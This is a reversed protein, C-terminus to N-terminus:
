AFTDLLRALEVPQDGQVSHGAGAVLEYRVSPQRQRFAEVDADDVVPSRDGRVLMIPVTIASVDEWLRDFDVTEIGRIRDYRWVWRGDERGTANHLVGRRLSSETRGPNHEITRALIEDFSSFSDPGNIFDAIAKSKERNVGPTVDVIVLKRVVDPHQAALRIASLGGLSMGVVAAADPALERIAIALAEANREPTYDHDPRWDSYGHGPLDVAVVPRGKASSLALVMTDWTHANQAGGHVLVIEPDGDGWVLASVRQGDGGEVSVRKVSPFADLRLGAEAANDALMGFEDYSM